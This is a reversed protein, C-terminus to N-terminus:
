KGFLRHDEEVIEPVNRGRSLFRSLLRGYWSYYKLWHALGYPADERCYLQGWPILEGCERCTTMERAWYTERDEEQFVEPTVPLEWSIHGMTDTLSVGQPGIHIGAGLSYGNTRKVAPLEDTPLEEDM